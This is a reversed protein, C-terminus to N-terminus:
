ATKNTNKQRRQRRRLQRTQRTEVMGTKAVDGSQLGSIAGVVVM